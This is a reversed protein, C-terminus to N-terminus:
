TVASVTPATTNAVSVSVNATSRNGGWDQAMASLIHTGDPVTLSNWQVTYPPATVQAGVPVSDAYFQVGAVSSAGSTAAIISVNGSVKSGNLPSTMSIGSQVSFPSLTLAIVAVATKTADALSTATLMVTQATTISAPATYLGGSSVTGLPP